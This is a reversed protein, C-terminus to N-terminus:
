ETEEEPYTAISEVAAPLYFGRGCDIVESSDETVAFTIYFCDEYAGYFNLNLIGNERLMISHFYGAEEAIFELEEETADPYYKELLEDTLGQEYIIDIVDSGAKYKRLDARRLSDDAGYEYFEGNELYFWYKKTTPEEAKSEEETEYYDYSTFEATFDKGGVYELNSFMGSVATEYVKSNEIGFVYTLGDDHNEAFMFTAGEMTVMEPNTWKGSEKLEAAYNENVFWLVGELYEAGAKGCFAFAELMGDGDFDDSQFWITQGESYEELKDRLADETNVTRIEQEVDVKGVLDDLFTEYSEKWGGSCASLAMAMIVTVAAVLIITKKLM